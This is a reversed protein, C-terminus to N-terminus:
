QANGKVFPATPTECGWVGTSYKRWSSSVKRGILRLPTQVTARYLSSLQHGDLTFGRPAGPKLWGRPPALDMLRTSPGEDQFFYERRLRDGPKMMRRM